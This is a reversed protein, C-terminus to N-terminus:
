GMNQRCAFRNLAGKFVNPTRFFLDISLQLVSTTEVYLEAPATNALDLEDCLRQLEGITAIVPPQTCRVRKDAEDPKAVAAKNCRAFQRLEEVRVIKKPPDLMDQLHLVAQLCM